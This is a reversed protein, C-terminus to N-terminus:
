LSNLRSQYKKLLWINTSKGKRFVQVYNNTLNPLYQAYFNSQGKFDLNGLYIIPIDTSALATLRESRFQSVSDIWPFWYVFRDPPLRRSLTYFDVDHPYVLIPEAPDSLRSILDADRQRYGWFVEYNYGPKLSNQLIPLTPLFLMVVLFSSVLFQIRSYFMFVLLCFCGLSILLFPYIGFNFPIGPIIKVERIRSAVFLLILVIALLKQKQRLFSALLVIFSLHLVFQAIQLPNFFHTFLYLEHSFFSLYNQDDVFFKPYVFFNFWVGQQWFAPLQGSSYLHILVVSNSVLFSFSSVLIKKPYLLYPILFLIVLLPQTWFALSSFLILLIHNFLSPKEWKLLIPLSLWFVTSLFIAAYTESLVLNGHYLTFFTSLCFIWLSYSYRSRNNKFSLFVLFFNILYLALASLRFVSILQSPSAFNWLPTFLYTWYYPFPFHHSFIDQYLLRGQSMFYAVALHDNEDFNTMFHRELYFLSSFIVISVLFTVTPLFRKLAVM